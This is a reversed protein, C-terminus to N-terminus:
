LTCSLNSFCIRNKLKPTCVIVIYCVKIELGIRFLLITKGELQMSNNPAAM